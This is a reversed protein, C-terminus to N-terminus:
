KKAGASAVATAVLKATPMVKKGGEMRELRSANVTADKAQGPGYTAIITAYTADGDVLSARLRAVVDMRILPDRGPREIRAGPLQVEFESGVGVGVDAGGDLVAESGQAQLVLLELPMLTAATNTIFRQAIERVLEPYGSSLKDEPMPLKPDVPFTSVVKKEDYSVSEQIQNTEINIVQAQLGLDITPRKWFGDPVYNMRLQRVLVVYKAQLLKGIQLASNPDVMGSTALKLQKMTDDLVSQSIVDFRKTAVLADEFAAFMTSRMYPRSTAQVRDEGILAIRMRTSATQTVGPAAPLLWTGLALLTVTFAKM